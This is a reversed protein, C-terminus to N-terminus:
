HMTMVTCVNRASCHLLLEVVLDLWNVQSVEVEEYMSSDLPQWLIM